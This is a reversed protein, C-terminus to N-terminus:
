LSRIWIHCLNVTVMLLLSVSSVSASSAWEGADPRGEYYLVHDVIHIMGNRMRMDYPRVHVLFMGFGITVEPFLVHLGMLLYCKCLNLKINNLSATEILVNLTVFM